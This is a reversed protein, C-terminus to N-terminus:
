ANLFREKLFKVVRKSAEKEIWHLKRRIYEINRELVTPWSDLVKFAIDLEELSRISHLLSKALYDSKGTNVAFLILKESTSLQGIKEWFLRRFGFNYHLSFVSELVSMYVAANKTDIIKKVVQRLLQDDNVCSSLAVNVTWQQSKRSLFKSLLSIEDYGANKYLYHCIGTIQQYQEVNLDTPRKIWQNKFDEENCTELEALCRLKYLKSIRTADILWLGAIEPDDGVQNLFNDSNAISKRFYLIIDRNISTGRYYDVIDYISDIGFLIVDLETEYQLYGLLQIYLEPFGSHKLYTKSDVILQIRSKIPIEMYNTHLLKILMKWNDLDYNIKFPFLWNVNGLLPISPSIDKDTFLITENNLWFQRTLIQKPNKESTFQYIFPINWLTQSFFDNKNNLTLMHELIRKDSSDDVTQVKIKPATHKSNKDNDKNYSINTLYAKADIQKNSRKNNHKQGIGDEPIYDNLFIKYKNQDSIRQIIRITNINYNRTIIVEPIGPNNLWTELVKKFDSTEKGWIIFKPLAEYLENRDVSKYANNSLYNIMSNQFSDIGILNEIMKVVVSGRIYIGISDFIDSCISEKTFHLILSTKEEGTQSEFFDVLRLMYEHEMISFHKQKLFYYVYYTAFGESLWIESWDNPTVLNGFFQHVLEHTVIKEIKLREHFYDITLNPSSSFDNTILLMNSHFIILGWNEMGGVSFTPTAVLDIKEMSYPFNFQSEIEDLMTPTFQSAFHTLYIDEPDTYISISINRKSRTELSIFDGYVFALLYVSMLPTKKFKTLVLPENNENNLIDMKKEIATNLLVVKNHHHKISVNFTTKFNPSDWCPIFTRAYFPEFKTTFGVIEDNKKICQVGDNDYTCIKTRFEMELLYKTHILNETLQLVILNYRKQRKIANINIAKNGARLRIRQIFINPAVHFKIEKINSINLKNELVISIQGLVHTQSSVETFDLNIDYHIPIISNNLKPTLSYIIPFQEHSNSEHSIDIHSREVKPPYVKSLLNHDIPKSNSLNYSERAIEVLNNTQSIINSNLLNKDNTKTLENTLDVHQLNILCINTLFFINCVQGMSLKIISTGSLWNLLFFLICVTLILISNVFFCLVCKRQCSAEKWIHSNKKFKGNKILRSSTICNKGNSHHSEVMIMQKKCNSMCPITEDNTYESQIRPYNSNLRYSGHM